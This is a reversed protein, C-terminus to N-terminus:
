GNKQIESRRMPMSDVLKFVTGWDLALKEHAKVGGDLGILLWLEKNAKKDYQQRLQSIEKEILSFQANSSVKEGYVWYLIKREQLEQILEKSPEIWSNEESPFYLVVRYKWQLTKLSVTPDSLNALGIWIGLMWIWGIAM